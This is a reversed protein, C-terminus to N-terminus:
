GEYITIRKLAGYYDPATYGFLALYEVECLSGNWTRPDTINGNGKTVRLIGTQLYIIEGDINLGVGNDNPLVAIIRGYVTKDSYYYVVAACSGIMLAIVTLSILYLYRPRM